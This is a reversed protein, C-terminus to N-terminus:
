AGARVVTPMSVANIVKIGAVQVCLEPPRLECPEILVQQLDVSRVGGVGGDHRTRALQAATRFLGGDCRRIVTGTAFGSPALPHDVKAAGRVHNGAHVVRRAGLNARPVTRRVCRVGASGNAELPDCVAPDSSHTDSARIAVLATHDPTAAIRAPAPGNAVHQLERPFRLLLMPAHAVGAGCGPPRCDAEGEKTIHCM